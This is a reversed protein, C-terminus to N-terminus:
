ACQNFDLIDFSSNILPPAKNYKRVPRPVICVIVMEKKCQSCKFTKGVKSKKKPLANDCGFIKKTKSLLERNASAFLGYYRVKVFGSPLVHQLFRRIFEDVKLNM